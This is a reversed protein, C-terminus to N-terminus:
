FLNINKFFGIIQAFFETLKDFFNEEVGNTFLKLGLQWKFKYFRVTVSGKCVAEGDTNYVTATITAKQARRSNNTVEGRDNVIVNKNDSEWIINDADYGYATAYLCITESSYKKWWDIKADFSNSYSGIEIHAGEDLVRVNFSLKRGLEDEAHITVKGFSKAKLLGSSSIEAIYNNSSVWNVIAPVNAKDYVLSLQVTDGKNISSPANDIKLSEAGTATYTQDIITSYIKWRDSTGYDEESIGDLYNGAKALLLADSNTIEGDRDADAALYVCEATDSSEEDSAITKVIQADDADYIGDGNVDGMLILTYSDVVNNDRIINVVSGTGLADYDSVCELRCSSDTLTLLNDVSNSKVNLGYIYGNPADIYANTELMPAVGVVRVICYDRFGGDQTTVTIVVSGAKKGRVLGNEDVTAITEDSSLWSVNKNEAEEPVFKGTLQVTEGIDIYEARSDLAFGAASNTVIIRCTETFSGDETEAIIYATGTAVTTVLGNSDVTAVDDNTSVWTVNKNSATLPTITANIQYTLGPVAEIMSDSLYIGTVHKCVHVTCSASFNGDVTTVTIVANGAIGSTVLGTSSVSAVDSDSSGWVVAPNDANTPSITAKLQKTQNVYLSVENESLAIGKVPNTVTIECSTTFGGESSTATIVTTGTAIATVAGSSSVSAVSPVSSSFIIGKNTANTPNFNCSLIRTDGVKMSINKESMDIGTLSISVNITCHAVKNGNETIATIIAQGENNTTIVGDANVTAVDTSDSIWRVGKNYADSPFVTATLQTQEGLAINLTEASLSIDTVHKPSLLVYETNDAINEENSSTSLSIDFKNSVYDADFDLYDAAVHYSLAFSEGTALSGCNVTTLSQSEGAFYSIEAEVNEATRCGNNIVTATILGTEDIKPNVLCIDAFGTEIEAINDSLNGDGDVVAKVSYTEGNFGDPLTYGINFTRSEGSSLKEFSTITRVVHGDSDVIDIRYEDIDATSINSIIGCFSVDSNASINGDVYCDSIAADTTEGITECVLDTSGYPSDVANDDLMDVNALVTVSMDSNLIADYYGIHNGYDTLAVPTSFGYTGLYSVALENKFGDTQIYVVATKEGNKLVRYDNEVALGTSVASSSFAYLIDNEIWYFDGDFVTLDYADTGASSVTTGNLYVRQDGNTELNGDTDVCYAAEASAGNYRLALDTVKQASTIKSQESWVAASLTKSYITETGTLLTYDNESNEAWAVTIEGNNEAISYLCQYKDASDIIVPADWSEGDFEAYVLNTKDVIDETNYSDQLEESARQWVAYVKEGDTVAQVPFDALGSNCLPQAVSWMGNEYISYYLTTRNIDSKTGDDYLYIAIIRGDDLKLLKPSGYPYVAKESIDGIAQTRMVNLYSRDILKLDDEDISQTQFQGFNPYLELNPFNTSWKHELVWLAKIKVYANANLYASFCTRFSSAPFNLSANIKGELGVEVSAINKDVAKAGVGVTPKVSFGISGSPNLIGSSNQQFQLKGEIEGKVGFTAYCFGWFPLDKKVGTSATVVIGGDKAVLKGTSYDWEMYGCIKLEAEFGLSGKKANEAKEMLEAYRKSVEKGNRLLKYFNKMDEYNQLVEDVDDGTASGSVEYGGKIGITAKLTKTKTEYATKVVFNDLPLQISADYEFLNFKYGLINVEPGTIKEGSLMVNALVESVGYDKSLSVNNTSYPDFEYLYRKEESYGEKSITIEEFGTSGAGINLKVTGDTGTTYASSNVAVSAGAIPANTETDTVRISYESNSKSEYISSNLNLKLAPRAGIYTRNLYYDSIGGDYDVYSASYNYYRTRLWWYAGSGYYYVGREKALDTAAAIRSSSSGLGYESSMDYLSPVFIKDSTDPGTYTGDNILTSTRIKSKETSSFALNYFEGNLWSRLSSNAWTYQSGYSENYVHQDLVKESLLFVGDSGVSLVRWRVPEFRYFDTVGNYKYRRYKVGNYTCDGLSNTTLEGLRAKLTVDTVKSQPYSGFAIISGVSYGAASAKSAFLSGLDLGAFGNLPAMGTIMLLVLMVSLVRKITKKM